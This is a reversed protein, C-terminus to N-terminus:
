VRAYEYRYFIKSLKLTVAYFVWCVIAICFNIILSGSLELFNAGEYGLDEFQEVPTESETFGFYAFIEDTPYM